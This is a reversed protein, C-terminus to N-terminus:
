GVSMVHDVHAKLSLDSDVMVGLNRVTASLNIVAVRVIRQPGALCHKV